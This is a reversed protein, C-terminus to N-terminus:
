VWRWLMCTMETLVFRKALPYARLFLRRVVELRVDEWSWAHGESWIMLHDSSPAEILLVVCKVRVPRGM